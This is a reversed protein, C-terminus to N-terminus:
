NAGKLILEEGDCNLAAALKGITMANAFSGDTMLRSVSSNQLNAKKALAAITLQQSFMLERIKKADVSFM